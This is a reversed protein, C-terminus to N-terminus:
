KSTYGFEAANFDTINWASADPQQTFLSVAMHYVGPDASQVFTGDVSESAGVRVSHEFEIWTAEGDDVSKYETQVLVHGELDYGFPLEVLAGLQDHTYLDQQAVVATEVYTTDGDPEIDPDDVAEWNAGALPTWQTSNGAGDPTVMLARIAEPIQDGEGTVDYIAFDQWFCYGQWGTTSGLDTSCMQWMEPSELWEWSSASQYNLMELGDVYLTAEFNIEQRAYLGLHMWQGMRYLRADNKFASAEAVKVVNKAGAYPGSDDAWFEIMNTDDNWRCMFTDDWDDPSAPDEKWATFLGVQDQAAMWNVWGGM